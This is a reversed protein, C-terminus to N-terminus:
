RYRAPVQQSGSAKALVIESEPKLVFTSMDAFSLICTADEDTRIHDREYLPTDIKAIKRDKEGAGEHRIEVQGSIGSFRAGSDVLTGGSAAVPAAPASVPAPFTAPETEVSWSAGDYLFGYAFEPSAGLAM